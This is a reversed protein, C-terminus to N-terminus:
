VFRDLQENLKLESKRLSYISFTGIKLNRMERLKELDKETKELLEEEIKKLKQTGYHTGLGQAMQDNVTKSLELINRRHEEIEKEVRQIATDIRRYLGSRSNDSVYTEKCGNKKFIEWEIKIENKLFPLYSENMFHDAIEGKLLSALSYDDDRDDPLPNLADQADELREKARYLKLYHKFWEWPTSIGDNDSDVREKEALLLNAVAERKRKLLDRISDSVIGHAEFPRMISGSGASVIQCLNGHHYYGPGSSNRGCLYLSSSLTSLTVAPNGAGSLVARKVCLNLEPIGLDLNRGPVLPVIDHRYVHRYHTIDAYAKVFTEDGTRPSGYTYLLPDFGKEKLYAALITAVAAGLSHGTIFLKKGQAATEFPTIDKIVANAQTAFGRHVQGRIGPMTVQAADLDIVGDDPVANKGALLSGLVMDKDVEQTGRVALVAHKADAFWFAETSTSKDIMYGKDSIGQRDEKYIEEMFPNVSIVSEQEYKKIMTLKEKKTCRHIFDEVDRDPRNKDTRVDSYALASMVALNYANVLSYEKTHRLWLTYETEKCRHVITGVKASSFDCLGM